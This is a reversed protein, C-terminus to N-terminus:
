GRGGKEGKAETKGLMLTKELLDARTKKQLGMFQLVHTEETWPIGWDLISSHNDNGGRPSRGSGPILDSDRADGASAPLKGVM